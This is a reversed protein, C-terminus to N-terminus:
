IDAKKVEEIIRLLEDYTGEGGLKNWMDEGILVEENMDMIRKTFSHKYRKPYYPNYYLALFAQPNKNEFLAQFLLMKRKSEACVDLNPLPSKIELFLPGPKFDGIFLDAIVRVERAEGGKAALIEQIEKQHNPKRRGMRLENVINDIVKIKAEDLQGMIEYNRHVEVYQDEAVIKALEPILQQGMKTVVTRQKKFAILAEGPFLLSHFPYARKLEEISYPVEVISRKFSLLVNKLKVRTEQRM